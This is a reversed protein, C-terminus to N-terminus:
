KLGAEVRRIFASIVQATEAPAEDIFAHSTNQVWHVHINARDPIRLQAPTPRPRGRDGWMELIPRETRQLLEYGHEWNQWPCPFHDRQEPTWARLIEARQRDIATRQADNLTGYVNGGFANELVTHHTWGEMSLVGRIREPCVRLMDVAIMGGISHGGIYFQDIPLSNILRFVDDTFLEVGAGKGAPPWSEGRGRLVPLVLRLDLDPDLLPIIRDFTHENGTSGHILVLTPGKGSMRVLASLRVGDERRIRQINWNTSM